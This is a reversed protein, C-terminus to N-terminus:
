QEAQRMAGNAEWPEWQSYSGKHPSRGNNGVVSAGSAVDGWSHRTRKGAGLTVESVVANAYKIYSRLSQHGGM